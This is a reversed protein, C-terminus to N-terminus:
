NQNLLDKANKIASASPNGTSLMKAIEVVREDKNLAKIHSITKQKDDNKYVFLHFKGKSAIQPLHTISIVQMKDSMRLLIQGIKDAVDGSVGTDIEDFIITPLAKKSAMISKISLMLRSLEGGSAVKHLPKFDSGKNASFLFQITDNGYQNLEALTELDIKFNANPMSLDNLISRIEKEFGPTAARRKKSVDNALATVDKQISVIERNVKEIENELSGFQQLKTEIQAKISILEEESKATHKKFLRNLKDLKSNIDELKKPDFIVKSEADELDNALEKLEIYLSNVRESLSRYTDGFKILSALQQKIQSLGSLLNTDGEHISGASRLLHSKIFEANELSASEEELNKLDGPNITIEELENFLFQYYDLDKKAQLEQEQLEALTKKKQNLLQFQKKYQAVPGQTGAVSDIVDFQFSSENLMLTEHQSHVDVLREGLQKMVTLIVPSDNIFARSKGEPNIERRLITHSEFDLENAKFFEELNYNGLFFEAEVVCKKSKDQLVGVDARAGLVLSLAELFISKGAGTEGTVIALNMPFEVKVEEILAYNNINLRKLM